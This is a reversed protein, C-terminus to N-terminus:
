RSAAEVARVQEPTLPVVSLRGEDGARMSRLHRLAAPNTVGDWRTTGERELDNWSFVSPETKLLWM